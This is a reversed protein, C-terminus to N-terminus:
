EEKKKKKVVYWMGYKSHPRCRLQRNCCPCKLSGNSQIWESCGTCYKANFDKYYSLGGVKKRAKYQNCM